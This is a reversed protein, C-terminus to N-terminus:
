SFQQIKGETEHVWTFKVAFFNRPQEIALLQLRTYGATYLAKFLDQLAVTLASTIRQGILCPQDRSPRCWLISALTQNTLTPFRTVETKVTANCSRNLASYTDM